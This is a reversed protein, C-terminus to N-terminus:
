TLQLQVLFPNAYTTREAASANDNNDAHEQGPGCASANTPRKCRARVGERAARVDVPMTM